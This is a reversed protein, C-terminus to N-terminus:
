LRATGTLHSTSSIQCAQISSCFGNPMGFYSIVFVALFDLWAASLSPAPCVSPSHIFRIM